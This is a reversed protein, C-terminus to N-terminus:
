CGVWLPGYFTGIIHVVAHSSGKQDTVPLGTDGLSQCDRPPGLCCPDHGQGKKSPPNLELIKETGTAQEFETRITLLGRHPM